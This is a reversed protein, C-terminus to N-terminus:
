RPPLLPPPPPPPPPPGRYRRDGRARGPVGRPVAARLGADSSGTPARDPRRALLCRRQPTEQEGHLSQDDLGHQRGLGRLVSAAPRARAMRRREALRAAAPHRGPVWTVRAGALAGGDRVLSPGRLRRGDRVRRRARGLRARP